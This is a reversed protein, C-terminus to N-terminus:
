GKKNWFLYEALLILLSSIISSILIKLLTYFFLSFSWVQVSFFIFHHIFVMLLVYMIFNVPGFKGLNLESNDEDNVGPFLVAIITPRIFAIFVLAAAHLGATGTFIGVLYGMAFALCLTLWQPTRLPLVLIFLPYFYPNMLGNLEVNNLVLVQLLLYGIFRLVLRVILNNM